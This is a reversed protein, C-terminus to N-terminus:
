NDLLQLAYIDGDAWDCNYKQLKRYKKLSPLPTGLRERLDCLTKKWALCHEESWFEWTKDNDLLQIAKEKVEQLLRGSEWQVGALAYWFISGGLPDALLDKSTEIMEATTTETNKGNRIGEIFEDRTDSAIDNEFLGTGWFGM